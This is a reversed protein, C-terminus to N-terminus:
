QIYCFFEDERSISHILHWCSFFFLIPPKSATSPHHQISIIVCLSFLKIPSYFFSAFSLLLSSLSFAKCFAIVLHVAHSKPNDVHKSTEISGCLKLYSSTQSIHTTILNLRMCKEFSIQFNINNPCFKNSTFLIRM